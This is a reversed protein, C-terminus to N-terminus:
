ALPKHPAFNGNVLESAKWAEVNSFDYNKINVLKIQESRIKQVIKIKM